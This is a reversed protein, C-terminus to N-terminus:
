SPSNSLAEEIGYFRACSEGCIARLAGEDLRELYGTVAGMVEHYSGSLTCVPWDSAIMLREPEFAELAVDLYPVFDEPKWGKWDAVSVLGSLKCSVNPHEAIRRMLTAWPEIAGSKIDPKALHDIVFPQDPFREVLAIANALHRPLILLDYRLGFQALRAIGRQFDPRLIFEDDPEDQVVHRMGKLKARTSCARLQEEVRDSCLDVWGVVAKILDYRDALDLLWETEAFLQRAQIVVSGEFGTESLLPALDPPLFDRRLADQEPSMWTYDTANYQWFHQHADIKM